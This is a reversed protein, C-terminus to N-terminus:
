GNGAQKKKVQRSVLLDIGGIAIMAIFATMQFNFFNSREIALQTPTLGSGGEGLAGSMVQMTGIFALNAGVSIWLLADIIKKM